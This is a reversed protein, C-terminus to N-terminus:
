TQLTLRYLGGVHHFIQDGEAEQYSLGSQRALFMQTAGTITLTGFDLLTRAAADIEEAVSPSDARVVGKVLWIHNDFANGGFRYTSTDSQKAFICLPFDTGDPAFRYRLSASGDGLLSTVASVNLKEYLAQRVAKNSVM